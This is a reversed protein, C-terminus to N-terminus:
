LLLEVRNQSVKFADGIKCKAQNACSDFKQTFAKVFASFPVFPYLGRVSENGTIEESMTM